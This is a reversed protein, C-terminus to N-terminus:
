PSVEPLSPLAPENDNPKALLVFIGSLAVPLIALGPGPSGNVASRLSWVHQWVAFIWGAASIAMVLHAVVLWPRIRQVPRGAALATGHRWLLASSVLAGLVLPIRGLHWSGMEHAQTYAHDEYDYTRLSGSPSHERVGFLDYRIEVHEHCTAQCAVVAKSAVPVVLLAFVLLPLVAVLRLDM